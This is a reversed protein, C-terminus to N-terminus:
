SEDGKSESIKNAKELDDLLGKDYLNINIPPAEPDDKLINAKVRVAKIIVNAVLANAKLIDLESVVIRGQPGHEVRLKSVDLDLKDGIGIITDLSDLNSVCKAIVADEIEKKSVEVNVVEKVKKEKQKKSKYYETNTKSKLKEIYRSISRYGISENYENALYDSIHRSSLGEQIMDIIENYYKSKEVKSKPPM